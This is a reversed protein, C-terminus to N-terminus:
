VAMEHAWPPNAGARSVTVAAAAIGRELALRLDAESLNAVADKTLNGQLRLGDLFGANFTDGAGITDAVTVRMAPVSLLGRATHATVGESGRTVTVIRTSGALWDAVLAQEPQGNALWALDEDSVKVIDAMAIMRAMRARHANADTIFGARINPDLSILRAKHERALLAEYTAGCPEFILSIAGFHMAAIAGDLKPLEDLGLLRGATGEDYFTYHANGNVLKVFAMTTPRQSSACYSADVGSAKLTERLVDGFLDSSLGTFFGTPAGLRGLAIATNFVAGGAFPVYGTLGDVTQRPIMDVLAEGCCLIMTAGGGKFCPKKRAGKPLVDTLPKGIQFSARVFFATFFRRLVRL